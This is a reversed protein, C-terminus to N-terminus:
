IGVASFWGRRAHELQPRRAPERAPFFWAHFHLLSINIFFNAAPKSTAAAHTDLAKACVAGAKDALAQSNSSSVLPCTIADCAAVARISGADKVLIM